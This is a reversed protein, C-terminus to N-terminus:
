FLLSRFYSPNFHMKTVSVNILSPFIYLSASQKRLGMHFHVHECIQIRSIQLKNTQDTTIKIKSGLYPNENNLIFQLKYIGLGGFASDVEIPDDDPQITIIRKAYTQSFAEEDSVANKQSYDLVEEWVDGPCLKKNRLAWLDYYGGIQNAFVAARSDESRLFDIAKSLSNISVEYTGWEDMDMVVLFDFTRLIKNEKIIEIYTNRIMELRLTRIGLQNLGDLNILNFNVKNLGFNQIDIKTSDVSDNEIFIYATESAYKSINEINRFVAPLYKSCNQVAGAFIIKPQM